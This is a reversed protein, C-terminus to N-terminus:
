GSIHSDLCVVKTKFILDHISRKDQRKDLLYFAVLFYLGLSLVGFVLITFARLHITKITVESNDENVIKIRSNYKGFTMGKKIFSPFVNTLYWVFLIILGKFVPEIYMFVVILMSLFVIGYDISFAHIRENYQAPLHHYEKM